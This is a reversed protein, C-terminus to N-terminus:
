RSDAFLPILEPVNGISAAVEVKFEPSHLAAAADRQSPGLGTMVLAAVISLWTWSSIKLSGIGTLRRQM